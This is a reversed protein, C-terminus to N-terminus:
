KKTSGFPSLFINSKDICNISNNTRYCYTGSRTSSKVRDLILPEYKKNVANPPPFPNEGGAIWGHHHNIMTTGVNTMRNLQLNLYRTLSRDVFVLAADDHIENFALELIDINNSTCNNNGSEICTTALAIAGADSIFNSYAYLEMFQRKALEIAGKDTLTCASVNLIHINQKALASIGEDGIAYNGTLDLSLFTKNKALEIAGVATIQQSSLELTDITKNFSFAKAGEDGIDNWRRHGFPDGSIGLTKITQNNALAKAGDVSINTNSVWLTKLSAINALAVASKDGIDTDDLNFEILSSHQALAIVGTDDVDTEALYLKVLSHNNALAIATKTGIDENGSLVLKKFSLNAALAVGGIDTIDNAMLNLDNLKTNKALEIAGADGINHMSLNLSTLTTNKAFAAIDKAELGGHCIGNTCEKFQRSLNLEKITEVSAFPIMGAATLDMNGALNVHTIEPHNKLFAIVDAIDADKLEGYSLNIEHGCVHNLLTAKKTNEPSIKYTKIKNTDLYPLPRAEAITLYNTLSIIFLALLSKKFTQM